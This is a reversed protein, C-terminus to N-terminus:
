AKSWALLGWMVYMWIIGFFPILLLVAWWGPKNMRECIKWQWVVSFITFIIASILFIMLFFVLILFFAPNTPNIIKLKDIFFSILMIILYSIFGGIFVLFPWWHMKALAPLMLLNAIPIWALWFKSYNLKKAVKQLTLGIFVYTFVLSLVYFILMIVFVESSYLASSFMEFM